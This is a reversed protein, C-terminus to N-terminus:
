IVINLKSAVRRRATYGPIHAQLIEYYKHTNEEKTKNVTKATVGLDRLLIKRKDDSIYVKERQYEALELMDGGNFKYARLRSIRDIGTKSWGMPRSSMRASLVHSVHGEASCGHLTEINENRNSIREWNGFLYTRVEEIIRIRKEIEIENEEFLDRVFEETNEIIRVAKRRNGGYVAARLNNRVDDASDCATNALKGIYKQLHFEDLVQVTEKGLVNRATDIWSGGDSMIFIKGDKELEYTGRIYEDIEEWLKRNMERGEYLGSFYRVGLLRYRKQEGESVLERGEYVYILKCITGNRKRGSSDNELDGKKERFQLAVHDEDASVYLNKVKKRAEPPRYPPFRLEHIKEMATQPSVSEMNICVNEGSKRFCSDAAEDYIRALADSSFRENKEKNMVRDLLYCGERDKKSRYLTKRYSVTGLSTIMSANDTKVIDWERKRGSLHKIDTDLDEFTEGIISLALKNLETGVDQIFAAYNSPNMIFEESIKQLSGIGKELFQQISNFM